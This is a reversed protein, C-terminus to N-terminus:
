STIFFQSSKETFSKKKSIKQGGKTATNTHINLFFYLFELNDKICRHDNYKFNSQSGNLDLNAKAQTTTMCLLHQATKKSAVPPTHHIATMTLPTCFFISLVIVLGFNSLFFCNNEIFLFFDIDM